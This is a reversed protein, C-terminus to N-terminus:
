RLMAPAPRRASTRDHVGACPAHPAVCAHNLLLRWVQPPSTRMATTTTGARIPMAKPAGSMGRSSSAPVWSRAQDWPTVRPRQNRTRAARSPTPATAAAATEAFLEALEPTREQLDHLQADDM